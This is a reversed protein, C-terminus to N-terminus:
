ATLVPATEFLVTMGLERALRLEIAAGKSLHWNALAYVADCRLMEAIAEKMYSEWAKDHEHPLEVPNVPEYGLITVAIEAKRFNTRYEAEPLGTCKGAIYCKKMTILIHPYAAPIRWKDFALPEPL